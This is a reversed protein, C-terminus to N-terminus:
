MEIVIRLLAVLAYLEVWNNTGKGVRIHFSFFQIENLHIVGGDGCFGQLYNGNKHCGVM